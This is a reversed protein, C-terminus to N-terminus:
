TSNCNHKRCAIIAFHWSIEDCIINLENIIVSRSLCLGVNKIQQHLVVLNNIYISCCQQCRKLYSFLLEITAIDEFDDEQKRMRAYRSLCPTLAGHIGFQSTTLVLLFFFGSSDRIDISVCM